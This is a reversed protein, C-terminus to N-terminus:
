PQANQSDGTAPLDLEIKRPVSEDGYWSVASAYYCYGDRPAWEWAEAHDLVTVKDAIRSKEGLYTKSSWDKGWRDQMAVRMDRTAVYPDRAVIHTGDKQLIAVLDEDAFAKVLKECPAAYIRLSTQGEQPTPWELSARTKDKWVVRVEPAELSPDIKRELYHTRDLIRNMYFNTTPEADQDSQLWLGNDRICQELLYRTAARMSDQIEQQTEQPVFRECARLIALANNTVVLSAREEGQNPDSTYNYAVRPWAALAKGDSTTAQMDLTTRAIAEPRPIERVALTRQENFREPADSRIPGYYNFLGDLFHFTIGMSRPTDNTGWYGTEPDQDALVLETLAEFWADDMGEPLVGKEKGIKYRSAFYMLSHNMHDNDTKVKENFYRTLGEITTIDYAQGVLGANPGKFYNWTYRSPWGRAFQRNMEDYYVNTATSGTIPDQRDWSSYHNKKRIVEWSAKAFYAQGYNNSLVLHVAQAEEPIFVEIHYTQWPFTGTTGIVISATMSLQVEGPGLVQIGINPADGYSNPSNVRGTDQGSAWVFVRVKKGRVAKLPLGLPSSSIIKGEGELALAPGEWAGDPTEIITRGVILLGQLIAQSFLTPLDLPHAEQDSVGHMYYLWNYAPRGDQSVVTSREVLDADPEEGAILSSAYTIILSALLLKKMFRPQIPTM